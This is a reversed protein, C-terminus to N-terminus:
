QPPFDGTCSVTFILATTKYESYIGPSLATNLSCARVLLAFFGTNVKNHILKLRRQKRAYLLAVVM